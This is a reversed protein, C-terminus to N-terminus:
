RAERQTNGLTPFHSSSMFVGNSKEKKRKGKKQEQSNIEKSKRRKKEKSLQLLKLIKYLM